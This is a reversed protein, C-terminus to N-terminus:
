SLQGHSRHGQGRDWVYQAALRALGNPDILSSCTDKPFPWPPGRNPDTARRGSVSGGTCAATRM